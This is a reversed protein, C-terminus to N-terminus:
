RNVPTLKDWMARWSVQLFSQEGLFRFMPRRKRYPVFDTAIKEVGDFLTAQYLASDAAAGMRKRLTTVGIWLDAALATLDWETRILLIVFAAAQTYSSQVTAMMEKAEDNAKHLKQPDTSEPALLLRSIRSGLGEAEEDDWGTDLKVAHRISKDAYKVFRNHLWGLLRDQDLPNSFDFTRNLRDEIEKALLWAESSLDEATLEGQTRAAIKRLDGRRDQLFM